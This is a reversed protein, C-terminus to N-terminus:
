SYTIHIEPKRKAQVRAVGKAKTALEFNFNHCFWQQKSKIESFFNWDQIWVM